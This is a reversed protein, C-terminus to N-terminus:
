ICFSIQIPTPQDLFYFAAITGLINVINGTFKTWYLWALTCLHNSFIINKKVKQIKIGKSYIYM